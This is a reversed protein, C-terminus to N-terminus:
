LYSVISRAIYDADETTLKDALQRKIDSEPNNFFSHLFLARNSMRTEKEVEEKLIDFRERQKEELWSAIVEHGGHRSKRISNALPFGYTFLLKVMAFNGKEASIELVNPKKNKVTYKNIGVHNEQLLLSATSIDNENIATIFRNYITEILYNLYLDKAPHPYFGDPNVASRPIFKDTLDNSLNASSIASFLYHYLDQIDFVLEGDIGQECNQVFNNEESLQLINNKFVAKRFDSDAILLNIIRDALSTQLQLYNNIDQVKALRILHRKQDPTLEAGQPNKQISEEISCKLQKVYHDLHIPLYFDDAIDNDFSAGHEILLQVVQRQGDRAADFLHKYPDHNFDFVNRYHNIYAGMKILAKVLRLNGARCADHLFTSRLYEQNIDVSFPRGVQTIFNYFNRLTTNKQLAAMYSGVAISDRVHM